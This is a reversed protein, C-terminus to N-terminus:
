LTLDAGGFFLPSIVSSSADRDDGTSGIVSWVSRKVAPFEQGSVLCGTIRGLDWGSFSAKCRCDKLRVFGKINIPNLQIISSVFQQQRTQLQVWMQLLIKTSFEETPGKGTQDHQDQRGYQEERSLYWWCPHVVTGPFSM